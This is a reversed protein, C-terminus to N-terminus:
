FRLVHPEGNTVYPPTPNIAILSESIYQKERINLNKFQSVYM